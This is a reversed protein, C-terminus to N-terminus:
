TLVLPQTPDPTIGTRPHVLGLWPQHVLVTKKVNTLMLKAAIMSPSEFLLLREVAGRDPLLEDAGEDFRTRTTTECDFRPQTVQLYPM